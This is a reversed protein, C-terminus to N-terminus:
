FPRPASAQLQAHPPPFLSSRSEHSFNAASKAEFDVWKRLQASLTVVHRELEGIKAKQQAQQDLDRARLNDVVSQPVGTHRKLQKREEELAVVM